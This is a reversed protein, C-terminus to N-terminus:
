KNITTWWVRGDNEADPLLQIVAAKVDPLNFDDGCLLGGDKLKSKWNLIDNYCGSYSHDADIFVIDAINDQVLQSAEQSNSRLLKANCLKILNNLLLHFHSETRAPGFRTNNFNVVCNDVCLLLGDNQLIADHFVRTSGCGLFTGVEIVVTPNKIWCLKQLKHLMEPSTLKYECDSIDKLFKM